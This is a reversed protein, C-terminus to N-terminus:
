LSINADCIPCTLNNNEKIQEKTFSLEALCNECVYDIYKEGNIDQEENSNSKPSISIKKKQKQNTKNKKRCEEAIDDSNEFLQGFGYILLSSTLTAITGLMIALLGILVLNDDLVAFIIGSIVSAILGLIFVVIALGKIKSGINIYM